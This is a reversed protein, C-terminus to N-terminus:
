QEAFRCHADDRASDQRGSRAAAGAGGAVPSAASWIQFAPGGGAPDSRGAPHSAPHDAAFEGGPKGDRCQRQRRFPRRLESQAQKQALDSRAAVIQTNIAAMEQDVLSNGPASDNLAHQAKYAQVAAQQQMLQQALDDARRQLWDSTGQTASTQRTVQADVYAQALANAIDQAKKATNANAYITIATSLGNADAGVHKLFNELIQDHTLNTDGGDGSEGTWFSLRFISMPGPPAKVPNFEPDNYLQLRTIVDEALERSTTVQIQNQLTSPDAPLQALVASLDTINNKRPELMVVASSSYQRPLLLATIVAAVIVALMVKLILDRRDSLITVFDGLRFSPAAAPPAYSTLYTSTTRHPSM